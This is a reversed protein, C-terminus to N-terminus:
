AYQVAYAKHGAHRCSWVLLGNLRMSAMAAATHPETVSALACSTTTILAV